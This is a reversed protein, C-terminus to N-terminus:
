EAQRTWPMVEMGIERNIRVIVSPSAGTERAIAKTRAGKRPLRKIAMEKGCVEVRGVHHARLLVDRRLQATGGDAQSRYEVRLEALLHGFRSRPLAKPIPRRGAVEAISPAATL